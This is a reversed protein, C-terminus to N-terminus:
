KSKRSKNKKKQPKPLPLFNGIETDGSPLPLDVGVTIVDEVPAIDAIDINNNVNKNVSDYKWSQTKNDWIYGFNKLNTTSRDYNDVNFANNDENESKEIIKSSDEKVAKDTNDTNTNSNDADPPPLSPGIMPMKVVNYGYERLEKEGHAYQCLNGIKCFGKAMFHRCLQTKYLPSPIVPPKVTINNNNNILSSSTNNNITSTATATTPITNTTSLSAAIISRIRKTESDNKRAYSLDLPIGHFYVGQLHKMASDAEYESHFNIFAYDDRQVNPLNRSLIVSEVFGYQSFLARLDEENINFTIGKVFM